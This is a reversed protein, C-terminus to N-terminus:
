ELDEHALELLDQSYKRLASALGELIEGPSAPYEESHGFVESYRVRDKLFDIKDRVEGGNVGPRLLTAKLRTTGEQNRFLRRVFGLLRRSDDEGPLGAGYSLKLNLSASPFENELQALGGEIGQAPDALPDPRTKVDVMTAGTSAELRLRQNENVVPWLEFWGDELEEAHVKNLWSEISQPLPGGSTRVSAVINEERFPLMYIPEVLREDPNLSLSAASGGAAEVDPWDSGPRAKCFYFYKVAPSKATYAHGIYRRGRYDLRKSEPPLGVLRSHFRDWFGPAIRQRVDNKDKHVIEYLYVFRKKGNPM